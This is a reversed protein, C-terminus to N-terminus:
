YVLHLTKNRCSYVGPHLRGGVGWGVGCGTSRHFISDMSKFFAKDMLMTNWVANSRILFHVEYFFFHPLPDMSVSNVPRVM